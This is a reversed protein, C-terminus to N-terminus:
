KKPPNVRKFEQDLFRVSEVEGNSGLVFRAEFPTREQLLAEEPPAAVTATFTDYHYHSLRFTLRGWRIALADKDATVEAQGYAPEEYKGAYAALERSPKTDPKRTAERKKKAELRDSEAKAEQEKYYANWDEAPLGLLHDLLTKSLAEPFNSPGLNGFVVVGCKAEPALVTQARFGPLTGGHSVVRHGRHDHVFWGLGYALHKTAKEPFFVKWRGEQRVVM